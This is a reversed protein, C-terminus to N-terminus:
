NLALPEALTFPAIVVDFSEGTSSVMRYTGHMTGVPTDMPCGSTYTFEDGPDLIPQKGVVGPGQVHEEVGHANTIIWHRSVLQVRDQGENRIRVFYAHAWLGRAPNSEEELYTPQVTVRVGRTICDSSLGDNALNASM